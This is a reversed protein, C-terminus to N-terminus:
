LRPYLSDNRIPDNKRENEIISNPYYTQSTNINEQIHLTEQNIKIQNTSEKEGENEEKEEKSEEKEQNSGKALHLLLNTISDWLAGILHISWGYITHLAYGHIITDIILKIIRICFYAGIM